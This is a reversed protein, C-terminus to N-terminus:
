YVVYLTISSRFCSYFVHLSGSTDCLHFVDKRSLVEFLEFNSSSNNDLILVTALWKFPIIRAGNNFGYRRRVVELFLRKKFSINGLVLFLVM